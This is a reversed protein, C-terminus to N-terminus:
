CGDWPVVKGPASPPGHVDVLEFPQLLQEVRRNRQGSILAVGIEFLRASLIGLQQLQGLTQESSDASVSRSQTDLRGEPRSLM